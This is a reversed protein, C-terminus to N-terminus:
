GTETHAAQDALKHLLKRELAKELPRKHDDVLHLSSVFTKVCKGEHCLEIFYGQGDETPIIEFTSDDM